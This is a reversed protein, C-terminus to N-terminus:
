RQLARNGLAMGAGLIGASVVTVVIAQMSQGEQFLMFALTAAALSATAAEAGITMTRVFPSSSAAGLGLLVSALFLSAIAAMCTARLDHTVTWAATAGAIAVVFALANRIVFAAIVLLLAGAILFVLM